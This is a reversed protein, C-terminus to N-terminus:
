KRLTELVPWRICKWDGGIRFAVSQHENTFLLRIAKLSEQKGRCTKGIGDDSSRLARRQVRSHKTDPRRGLDIAIHNLHGKSYKFRGTKPCRDIKQPFLAQDYIETM